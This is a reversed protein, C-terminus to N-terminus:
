DAMAQTLDITQGDGTKLSFSTASKDVLFVVELGATKHASSKAVGGKDDVVTWSDFFGDPASGPLTGRIILVKQNDPVSIYLGSAIEYETAIEVSTITLSVGATTVDISV